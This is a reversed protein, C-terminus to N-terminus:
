NYHVKFGIKDLKSSLAINVRTLEKVAAELEGVKSLLLRQNRIIEEDTRRRKTTPMEVTELKSNRAPSPPQTTGGNSIEQVKELLPM